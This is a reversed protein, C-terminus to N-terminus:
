SKEKSVSQIILQIFDKFFADKQAEKGTGIYKEQRKLVQLMGFTTGFMFLLLGDDSQSSQISGDERGLAIIETVLATIQHDKQICALTFVREKDIQSLQDNAYNKLEFMQNFGFHYPFAKMYDYYAYGIAILQDLGTKQANAASSLQDFLASLARFTIAAFIEEKDKFYAYFTRKTYGIDEAIAEIAVSDYKDNLFRKEAADIFLQQIREKKRKKREEPDISKNM